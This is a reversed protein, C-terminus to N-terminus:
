GPPLVTTTGHERVLAPGAFAAGSALRDRQYVPCSTPRDSGDLYVEQHSAPEAKGGTPLAPFEVKPRKGIAALRLNVIEVPEAPSHHAYRHEYLRDFAARVASRDGRELQATTVTASLTFEQGVYRIDFQLRHEVDRTRRLSAQAEHIMEAYVSRLKAFDVTQLDAYFTRTYDHREDAALM